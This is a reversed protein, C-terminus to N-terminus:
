HMEKAVAYWDVEICIEPSTPEYNPRDHSSAATNGQVIKIDSHEDM